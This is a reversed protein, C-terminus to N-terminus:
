LSTRWCRIVISINRDEVTENEALFIYNPNIKVWLLDTIELSFSELRSVNILECARMFGTAISFFMFFCHLVLSDSLSDCTFHRSSDFAVM